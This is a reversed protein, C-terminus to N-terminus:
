HGMVLFNVKWIWESSKHSWKQFFLLYCINPLLPAKCSLKAIKLLRMYMMCTIIDLTDVSARIDGYWFNWRGFKSAQNILLRIFIYPCCIKLLLPVKCSVHKFVYSVAYKWSHVQLSGTAESSGQLIQLEKPLAGMLKLIERSNKTCLM